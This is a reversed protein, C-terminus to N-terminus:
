EVPSAETLTLFCKANNNAHLNLFHFKKHNRLICQLFLEFSRDFRKSEAPENDSNAFLLSGTFTPRWQNVETEESIYFTIADDFSSAKMYYAISKM